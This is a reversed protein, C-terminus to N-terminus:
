KGGAMGGWNISELKLLWDRIWEQVNGIFALAVIAGCWAYIYLLIQFLSLISLNYAATIDQLIVMVAFGILYYLAFVNKKMNYWLVTVSFKIYNKEQYKKVISTWYKEDDLNKKDYYILGGLACLAFILILSAILYNYNNDQGNSTIKGQIASSTIIGNPDGFTNYIFDGVETTNCFTYNYYHPSSQVM